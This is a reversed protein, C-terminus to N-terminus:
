EASTRANAQVRWREANVGFILMWLLLSFEAVAAISAIPAFLTHALPPWVYLMWGGGDLMLLAGVLRPLFLSRIILFGTVACWAGFLVLYTDNAVANTQLLSFALQPSPTPGTLVNLASLYLVTTVAQVSSGVVIILLGALALRASVPRFLDYLLLAWVIHFLVGVICCSFGFRFLDQRALINASTTVADHVIFKRLVIVQGYTFATGELAQFVAALRAISRPSLSQRMNEDFEKGQVFDLTFVPTSHLVLIVPPCLYLPHM